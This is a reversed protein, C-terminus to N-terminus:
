PAVADEEFRVRHCIGADSADVWYSGQLALVRDTISPLATPALAPERTDLEIDIEVQLRGAAGPQVSVQVGVRGVAQGRSAERTSM